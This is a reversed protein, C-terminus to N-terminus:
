LNTRFKKDARVLHRWRLVKIGASVGLSEEITELPEGSYGLSDLSEIEMMSLEMYEYWARMSFGKPPSPPFMEPAKLPQATSGEETNQPQAQKPLQQTMQAVLLTSVSLLTRNLQAFGDNIVPAAQAITNEESRKKSKM